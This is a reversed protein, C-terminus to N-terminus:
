PSGSQIRDYLSDLYSGDNWSGNPKARTTPRHTGGVDIRKARRAETAHKEREKAEAEAKQAEEAQRKEEAEKARQAELQKRITPNANCAMEYAEDLDDAKGSEVFYAMDERVHDFYPKDSGWSNVDHDVEAQAAAMQSQALQRESQDRGDLRRNLQSVQTKLAGIVEDRPDPPIPRGNQDLKPLGYASAFDRLPVKYYRALAALTQVPSEDMKRQLEILREVGKIPPANHRAFVDKNKALLDGLPKFASLVQGQRSIYSHVETERAALKQQAERPLSEWMAREDPSWSRPLPVPAASQGDKNEQSKDGTKDAAEASAKGDISTKTADGKQPAGTDKGKFTGDPNREQAKDKDDSKAPKDETKAAVPKEKGEHGGDPNNKDFIEELRKTLAADEDQKAQYRDITASDDVIREGAANPEPTLPATSGDPLVQSVNTADTM